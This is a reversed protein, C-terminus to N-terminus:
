VRWRRAAGPPRHRCRCRRRRCCLSAMEPAELAVLRCGRAAVPCFLAMSGGQACRPRRWLGGLLAAVDALPQATRRAVPEWALALLLRVPGPAGLEDATGVPRRSLRGQSQIRVPAPGRGGCPWAGPRPRGTCRRPRMCQRAASGAQPRSLVPECAGNFLYKFVALRNKKPILMNAPQHHILRPNTAPPRARLPRAAPGAHPESPSQLVLSICLCPCCKLRFDWGVCGLSSGKRQWM